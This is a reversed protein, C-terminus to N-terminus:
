AYQYTHHNGSHAPTARRFAIGIDLVSEKSIHVEILGLLLHKIGEILLLKHISCPKGM